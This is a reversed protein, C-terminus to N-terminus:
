QTWAPRSDTAVGDGKERLGMTRFQRDGLVGGEGSPTNEPGRLGASQADMWELLLGMVIAKGVTGTRLGRRLVDRVLLLLM